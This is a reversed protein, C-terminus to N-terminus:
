NTILIGMVLRRQRRPVRHNGLIMNSAMPTIQFSIPGLNPDTITFFSPGVALKPISQGHVNARIQLKYGGHRM